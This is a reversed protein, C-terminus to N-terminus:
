ILFLHIFSFSFPNRRQQTPPSNKAWGPALARSPASAAWPRSLRRPHPPVVADSHAWEDALASPPSVASCDSPAPSGASRPLFAPRRHAQRRNAAPPGTKPGRPPPKAHASAPSELPLSLKALPTPLPSDAPLHRLEAAPIVAPPSQTLSQPQSTTSRTRPKTLSSSPESLQESSWRLPLSLLPPSVPSPSSPPAGHIISPHPSSPLPQPRHPSPPARPPRKIPVRPFPLPPARRAGTLHVAGANIGCLVASSVGRRPPVPCPHQDLPSSPATGFEEQAALPCRHLHRRHPSPPADYAPFVVRSVPPAPRSTLSLARSRSPSAPPAPTDALAPSPLV